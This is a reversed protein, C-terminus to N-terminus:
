DRRLAKIATVVLRGLISKNYVGFRVSDAPTTTPWYARTQGRPAAVSDLLAFSTRSFYDIPGAWSGGNAKVQYVMAYISNATDASTTTMTNFLTIYGFQGPLAATWSTDTSAGQITDNALITLSDMMPEAYTAIAGDASLEVLREDWLYLRWSWGVSQLLTAYDCMTLNLGLASSGFNAEAHASGNYWDAGSRKVTGYNVYQTYTSRLVGNRNYERMTFTAMSDARTLTTLTVDWYRKEQHTYRWASDASAGTSWATVVSVPNRAGSAKNSAMFYPSKTRARLLSTNVTDVLAFDIAAISTNQAQAERPAALLCLLGVIVLTPFSKM